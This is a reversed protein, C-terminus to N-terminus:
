KRCSAHQTPDSHIILYNLPDKLNLTCKEKEANLLLLNVVTNIIMFAMMTLVFGVVAQSIANKNKTIAEENGMSVILWFGASVILYVAYIAALGILTNTARIALVFVDKVGCPPEPAPGGCPVLGAASAFFPIVSLALIAILIKSKQKM